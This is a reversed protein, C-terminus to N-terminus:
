VVVVARLEGSPDFWCLWPIQAVLDRVALADIVILIVHRQLLRTSRESRVVLEVAVVVVLSHDLHGASIHGGVSVESEVGGSLLLEKVHCILIIGSVSGDPQPPQLVAGPRWQSRPDDVIVALFMVQSSARAM